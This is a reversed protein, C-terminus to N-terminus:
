FNHVNNIEPIMRAKSIHIHFYFKKYSNKDSKCGKEKSKKNYCVFNRKVQKYNIIKQVINIYKKFIDVNQM